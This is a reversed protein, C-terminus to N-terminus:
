RVKDDVGRLAALGRRWDFAECSRSVSAPGDTGVDAVSWQFGVNQDAELSNVANALRLHTDGAPLESLRARMTFYTRYRSLTNSVKCSLSGFRFRFSARTRQSGNAAKGHGRRRSATATVSEELSHRGRTRAATGDASSSM